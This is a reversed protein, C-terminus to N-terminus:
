NILERHEDDARHLFEYAKDIMVPMEGKAATEIVKKRLDLETRLRGRQWAEFIDGRENAFEDRLAMPDLRMLAAVQKYDFGVRGYEEIQELDAADM